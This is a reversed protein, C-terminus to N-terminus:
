VEISAVIAKADSVESAAQAAHQQQANYTVFLVDVGNTVYWAWAVREEDSLDGGCYMVQNGAQEISAPAPLGESEAFEMLMERLDDAGISPREGSDYTAVSFQLAGVGDPKALTFPTDEPLDHTIDVWDSPVRMSANGFVVRYTSM